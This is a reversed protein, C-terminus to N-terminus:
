QAYKKVLRDNLTLGVGPQTPVLLDGRDFHEAPEVIESRWPVEGWQLELLRFNPLTAAVQGSMATCVPGSPNHPAVQVGEMAAMAAIHTLELLGGCHKVDPMIVEVAKSRCLASFGQMRFLIEGGAMAQEIGHRIATTEEIKEPAVPEEYWILRYPELRHAVEIALPVDFVSHADVMVQIDPGVAERVAAVCAIGEVVPKATAPEPFSAQKFGDFPALKVARFGDAVARRASDAFGAPTRPQTARNINAYVPLRDRLKGGLLVHIPQHLLKGALDWLAQEIASFATATVLGGALARPLGAQRFWAIEFPSRGELLTFLSKLEDAMQAAQARTTDLYGFADSAEGLGSIGADTHLRVFLWETRETARVPLLELSTLKVEPKADAAAGIGPPVAALSLAGLGSGLFQRRSPTRM